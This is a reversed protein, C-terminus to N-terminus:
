IEKDLNNKCLFFNVLFFNMSNIFIINKTNNIHYILNNSKLLKFYLIQKVIFFWSHYFLSKKDEKTENWELWGIRCPNISSPFDWIVTTEDFVNRSYERESTVRKFESKQVNWRRGRPHSYDGHNSKEVLYNEWWHSVLLYWQSM